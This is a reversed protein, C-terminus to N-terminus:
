DHGDYIKTAMPFESIHSTAYSCATAAQLRSCLQNPIEQITPTSTQPTAKTDEVDAVTRTVRHTTPKSSRSALKLVSTLTTRSLLSSVQLSSHQVNMQWSRWPSWWTNRLRWPSRWTSWHSQRQWLLNDHKLKKSYHSESDNCPGNCQM